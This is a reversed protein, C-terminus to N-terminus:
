GRARLPLPCFPAPPSLILLPRLSFGPFFFHIALRRILNRDKSFDNLFSLGSAPDVDLTAWKAEVYNDRQQTVRQVVRANGSCWDSDCSGHEDAQWSTQIMFITMGVVVCYKIVRWYCCCFFVYMYNNKCVSLLWKVAVALWGSVAQM